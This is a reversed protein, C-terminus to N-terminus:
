KQNIKLRNVAWVRIVHCFDNLCHYESRKEYENWYQMMPKQCGPCIERDAYKTTDKEEDFPIDYGITIM